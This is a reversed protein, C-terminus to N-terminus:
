VIHYGHKQTLRGGIVENEHSPIIKLVAMEGSLIQKLCLLLALYNSSM